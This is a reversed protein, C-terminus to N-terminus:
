VAVHRETSRLRSNKTSPVGALKLHGMWGVWRLAGQWEAWARKRETATTVVAYVACLSLVAEPSRPRLVVVLTSAMPFHEDSNM